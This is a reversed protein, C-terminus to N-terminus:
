WQDQPHEKTVAPGTPAGHELGTGTPAEQDGSTRHTSM